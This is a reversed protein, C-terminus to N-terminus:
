RLDEGTWARAMAEVQSLLRAHDDDPHEPPRRECGDLYAFRERELKQRQRRARRDHSVRMIM